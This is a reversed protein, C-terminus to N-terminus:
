VHFFYYLPAVWLERVSSASVNFSGEVFCNRWFLESCESFIRFSLRKKPERSSGFLVVFSLSVIGVVSIQEVCM